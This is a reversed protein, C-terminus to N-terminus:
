FGVVARQLGTSWRLQPMASRFQQVAAASVAPAADAEAQAAAPLSLNTLCTLSTLLLLTADSLPLPNGPLLLEHLASCSAFAPWLVPSSLGCSDLWLCQLGPLKRVLAAVGTSTLDWCQLLVLSTLATLQTWGLVDEAQLRLGRAKLECLRSLGRLSGLLSLSMDGAYPNYGGGCLPLGMQKRYVQLCTIHTASAVHAAVAAAAARSVTRFAALDLVLKQLKPMRSVHSLLPPQAFDVRENLVRLNPLDSVWHMGNDSRLTVHTLSAPLTCQGSVSGWVGLWLTDLCSLQSLSVAAQQQEPIRVFVKLSVLSCPLHQLVLPPCRPELHLHTLHQLQACASALAASCGDFCPPARTIIALDKLTSLHRLSQVIAVAPGRVDLRLTDLCSLQSLSVAAQPQEPMLVCVKLSVLSCPLHQLVLPPCCCLHDLRTLQQLQACASALAASCSDSFPPGHNFIALHKLTSLHRLSHVTAAAPLERFQWELRTLQSCAGLAALAAPQLLLDGTFSKLQLGRLPRLLGSPTQSQVAASTAASAAMSVMAQQHACLQVAATLMHESLARDTDSSPACLQLSSVLGANGPLWAAFGSLRQLSAPARYNDSCGLDEPTVSCSIGSDYVAARWATSVQLLSCLTRINCEQLVLQLVQALQVQLL